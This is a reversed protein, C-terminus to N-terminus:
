HRRRAAADRAIANGIVAGVLTAAPDGHSVKNGIAAGVFTGIIPAPDAARYHARPAHSARPLPRHSGYYPAYNRYYSRHHRRHTRREARRRARERHARHAGYARRGHRHESRHDRYTRRVDSPHRGYDRQDHREYRDAHRAETRDRAAAPTIIGAFLTATIIGLTIKNM